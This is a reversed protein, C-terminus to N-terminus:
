QSPTLSGSRKRRAGGTFSADRSRLSLSLPVFYSHRRPFSVPKEEPWRRPAGSAAPYAFMFLRLVILADAAEEMSGSDYSAHLDALIMEQVAEEGLALSRLYNALLQLHKVTPVVGLVIRTPELAVSRRCKNLSIM